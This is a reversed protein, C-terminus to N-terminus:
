SAKHLFGAKQMLQRHTAAAEGLWNKFETGVM